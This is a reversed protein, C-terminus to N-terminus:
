FTNEKILFSLHQLTYVVKNISLRVTKLLECHRASPTRVTRRGLVVVRPADLPGTKELFHLYIVLFSTFFTTVPCSAASPADLLSNEHIQVVSSFFTFFKPSRSFFTTLFKAFPICFLKSSM